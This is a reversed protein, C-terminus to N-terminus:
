GCLSKEGPHDIRGEINDKSELTEDVDSQLHKPTDGTRSLRWRGQYCRGATTKDEKTTYCFEKFNNGISWKKIKVEYIRRLGRGCAKQGWKGARTEARPQM